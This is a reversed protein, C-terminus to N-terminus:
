IPDSLLRSPPFSVFLLDRSKSLDSPIVLSSLTWTPIVLSCSALRHRPLRRARRLRGRPSFGQYGPLLIALEAVEAAGEQVAFRDQPTAWVYDLGFREPATDHHFSCVFLAVWGAMESLSRNRSRRCPDPHSKLFRRHRHSRSILSVLVPPPEGPICLQSLLRRSSAHRPLLQEFENRKEGQLIGCAFYEGVGDVPM